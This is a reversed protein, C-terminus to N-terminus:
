YNYLNQPIVQKLIDELKNNNHKQLWLAEELMKYFDDMNLQYPDVKFMYRILAASKKFEDEFPTPNISFESYQQMKEVLANGSSLSFEDSYTDVTLLCQNFLTLIAQHVDNKYNKQYELFIEYTPIRCYAIEDSTSFKLINGVKEKWKELAKNKEM